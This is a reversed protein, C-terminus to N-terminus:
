EDHLLTLHVGYIGIYVEEFTYKPYVLIGPPRGRLRHLVREYSPLLPAAGKFRSLLGGCM